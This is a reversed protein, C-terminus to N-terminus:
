KHLQSGLHDFLKLLLFNRMSSYDKYDGHLNIRTVGFVNNVNDFQIGWSKKPFSKSSAGKYKVMVRYSFNDVKLVAPYYVEDRPHANMSDLHAPPIVLQYHPLNQATLSLAFLLVALLINKRM